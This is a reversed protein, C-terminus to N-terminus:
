HDIEGSTPSKQVVWLGLDQLNVDLAVAKANYKNTTDFMSVAVSLDQAGITVGKYNQVNDILTLRLQNLNFSFTLDPVGQRAAINGSLATIKSAHEEIDLEIQQLQEDRQQATM